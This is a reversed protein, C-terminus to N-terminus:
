TQESYTMSIHKINERFQGRLQNLRYTTVILYPGSCAVVPSEISNIGM